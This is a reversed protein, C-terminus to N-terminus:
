LKTLLAQQQHLNHVEQTAQRACILIESLLRACLALRCLQPQRQHSRVGRRTAQADLSFVLPTAQAQAQAAPTQGKHRGHVPMAPVQMLYEDKASMNEEANHKSVAAPVKARPGAEVQIGSNVLPPLVAHVAVDCLLQRGQQAAQWLQIYVVHTGSPKLQV